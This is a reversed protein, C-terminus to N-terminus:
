GCGPGCGFAVWNFRSEMPINSVQCDSNRAALTFGFRTVNRAMCSPMCLGARIATVLVVPPADFPRAFFIETTITDGPTGRQKFPFHDTLGTDVLLDAGGLTAPLSPFLAVSNFGCDGSASDSNRATLSFGKPGLDGVVGVAAANHVPDGVYGIQNATLFVFPNGPFPPPAMPPFPVPWQQTDGPTCDATFSRPQGIAIHSLPLASKGTEAVALWNLSASGAACGSNRAIINFGSAKLDEVAAVVHALPSNAATFRSSATLIVTINANPFGFLPVHWNKTDGPVCTPSFQQAPAPTAHSTPGTDGFLITSQSLLTSM